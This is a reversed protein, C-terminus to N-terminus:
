IGFVDQGKLIGGEDGPYILLGSFLSDFHYNDKSSMEVHKEHPSIAWLERFVYIYPNQM